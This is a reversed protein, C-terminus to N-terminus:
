VRSATPRTDAIMSSNSATDPDLALEQTVIRMPYVRLFVETEQATLDNTIKKFDAVAFRDM